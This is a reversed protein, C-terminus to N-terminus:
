IKGVILGGSGDILIMAALHILTSSDCIAGPM